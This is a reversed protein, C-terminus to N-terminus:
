QDLEHKLLLVLKHVPREYVTHSNGTNSSSTSTRPVSVTCRRVLGDQSPLVSQIRGLRWDARCASEDQLLVIDGVELNPRRRRWKRRTQLTSLYESRWRQWFADALHQVRRWRRRTSADDTDFAGPPPLVGCTRQTLIHNPTLPIPGSPDELSEVSLPRSNVITMVEYLLTRLSSSTLSCESRKLLGNLVTRVSRILREWVGGFHSAHPPNFVWEIEMDVLKSKLKEHDMEKWAKKLERSAGIFNTGRDSCIYSIQGRIAIVNRLGLLFSDTSLDDLVELHIARTALCTM